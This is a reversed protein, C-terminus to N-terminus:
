KVLQVELLLLHICVLPCTYNSPVEVLFYRKAM